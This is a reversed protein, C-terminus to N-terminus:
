VGFRLGLRPGFEAMMAVYLTSGTTNRLTLRQIGGITTAVSLNFNTDLAIAYDGAPGGGGGTWIFRGYRSAGPFGTDSAEGPRIDSTSWVLHFIAFRDILDRIDRQKTYLYTFDTPSSPVAVVQFIRLVDALRQRVHRVGGGGAIPSQTRVRFSFPVRPDGDGAPGLPLCASDAPQAGLRFEGQGFQEYLGCDQALNLQRPQIRTNITGLASTIRAVPSSRYGLQETAIVQWLTSVADAVITSDFSACLAGDTNRAYVLLQGSSFSAAYGTTPDAVGPGTYVLGPTFLDLNEDGEIGPRGQESDMNALGVIVIRDRWDETTDLVVERRGASPPEIGVLVGVRRCAGASIGGTVASTGNARAFLSAASVTDWLNGTLTSGPLGDLFEEVTDTDSPSPSAARAGLAPSVLMVGWIEMASAEANVFRLGSANNFVFRSGTYTTVGDTLDRSRYSTDDAANGTYWLDSFVKVDGGDGDNVDGPQRTGSTGGAAYITILRDILNAFHVSGTSSAPVTMNFWFALGGVGQTDIGTTALADNQSAHWTLKRQIRNLDEADLRTLQAYSVDRVPYRQTETLGAQPPDADLIVKGIDADAGDASTNAGWRAGRASCFVKDMRSGRSLQGLAHAPFARQLAQTLSLKEHATDGVASPTHDDEDLLIATQAISSPEGLEADSETATLLTPDARWTLAAIAREVAYTHGSTAALVAALRERRQASTRAVDNPLALLREWEDLTEEATHAFLELAARAVSTSGFAGAYAQAGAVAERATGDEETYGGRGALQRLAYLLAEVREPDVFTPM